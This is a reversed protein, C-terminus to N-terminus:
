DMLGKKYWALWTQSDIGQIGPNDHYIKNKFMYGSFRKSTIMKKTPYVKFTYDMKFNDINEVVYNVDRYVKKAFIWFTYNWKANLLYFRFKSYKWFLIM